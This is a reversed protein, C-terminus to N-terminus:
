VDHCRTRRLNRIIQAVAMGAPGRNPPGKIGAEWRSITGQNVGFRKAFRRQNEGLLERVDRIEKPTTVEDNEQQPLHL